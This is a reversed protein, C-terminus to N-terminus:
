RRRAVALVAVLAPLALASAPVGASASCECGDDDAADDDAGDDDAGDDDGPEYWGEPMEYAGPDPVAVGDGDGDAPRADGHLDLAATLEDGGADILPSDVDLQLSPEAPEDPGTVFRPDLSVNGDAGTPDTGEWDAPTNDFVDNFVARQEGTLAVAGQNFAVISHGLREVEILPFFAQSDNGAVTAHVLEAGQWLRCPGVDNWVMEVNSAPVAGAAVLAGDCNTGDNEQLVVRDLQGDCGDRLDLVGYYSRNWRMSFGDAVVTSDTCTVGRNSAHSSSVGSDLLTLTSSRVDIWIDLNWPLDPLEPDGIDEFRVRSLTAHSQWVYLADPDGDRPSEGRALTLDEIRVEDEEAWRIMMIEEGYEGDIETEWVGQGRITVGPPVDLPLVEGTTSPSFTGEGLEIVDGSVAAALAETLSPFDGSGDTEVVLTVAAAPGPAVLALLVALAAPARMAGITPGRGASHM